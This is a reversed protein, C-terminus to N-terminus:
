YDAPLCAASCPELALLHWWSTELMRGCCAPPLGGNWLSELSMWAVEAVEAVAAPGQAV